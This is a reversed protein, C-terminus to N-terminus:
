GKGEAGIAAAFDRGDRPGFIRWSLGGRAVIKPFEMDVVGRRALEEASAAPEVDVSKLLILKAGLLEALRAALTDSTASWIAPVSADDAIMRLPVWVPTAGRDLADFIDASREVIVLGEQVSMMFEAMQHMGLMALRHGVADSFNMTKQLARISDAFPGGGPVVVVPVRAARITALAAELRGTEALSGGVKIVLPPAGSASTM